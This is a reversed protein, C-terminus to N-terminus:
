ISINFKGIFQKTRDKEPATFIQKPTGKEVINGDEMFVIETSINRAFEIEHTVIIMTTGDKALKAIVDLVEFTLEPDLASTPEDFLIVSPEPAIARAIAVRQQQGGSLEDPYFNIRDSMGVKDLMKLATEKAVAKPIKRATRLGEMVNELATMNRFLNFNQFVFGMQMRIDHITKKDAKNFEATHGDVFISGQDAKELFSACRLLTTKGSGSPGLISVIEGKNVTLSIGDLVKNTGFSKHLNTIELM